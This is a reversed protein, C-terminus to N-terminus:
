LKIIKDNLFEVSTVFYICIRHDNHKSYYIIKKRRKLSLIHVQLWRTFQECIVYYLCTIIKSTQWECPSKINELPNYRLAHWYWRMRGFIANAKM